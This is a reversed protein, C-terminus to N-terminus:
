PPSIRCCRACKGIEVCKGADPYALVGISPNLEDRTSECSCYARFNAYPHHFGGPPPGKAPVVEVQFVPLGLKGLGVLPFSEDKKGEYSGADVGPWSGIQDCTATSLEKKDALLATMAIKVSDGHMSPVIRIGLFRGIPVLLAGLMEGKGVAPVYFVAQNTGVAVPWPGGAPLKISIGLTITPEEQLNAQPWAPLSGLLLVATLGLAYREATGRRASVLLFGLHFSMMRQIVSLPPVAKRAANAVSLWMSLVPRSVSDQLTEM